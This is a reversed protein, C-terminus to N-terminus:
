AAPVEPRMLARHVDGLHEIRPTPLGAAQLAAAFDPGTSFDEFVERSPCADVVTVGDARTTCVHLITMEPPFGAMLEDYRPRLDDPDGDFHYAVLYPATM